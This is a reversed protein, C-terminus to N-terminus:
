LFIISNQCLAHLSFAVSKGPSLHCTQVSMGIDIHCVHQFLRCDYTLYNKISLTQEGNQTKQKM